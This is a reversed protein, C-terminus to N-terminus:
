LMVILDKTDLGYSVFARVLDARLEPERMRRRSAAESRYRQAAHRRENRRQAEAPDRERLERAEEPDLWSDLVREADVVADCLLERLAIASSVPEEPQREPPAAGADSSM